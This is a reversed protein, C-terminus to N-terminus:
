KEDYREKRRSSEEMKRKRELRGWRKWDHALPQINGNVCLLPERSSRLHPGAVTHFHYCSYQTQWLTPLSSLRVSQRHCHQLHGHPHSFSLFSTNNSDRVVLPISLQHCRQFEDCPLPKPLSLKYYQQFQHYPLLILLSLKYCISFNIMSFSDCLLNESVTPVIILLSYFAQWLAVSFVSLSVFVSLSPSVSSLAQLM